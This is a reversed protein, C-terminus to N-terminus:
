KQYLGGFNEQPLIYSIKNEEKQTRPNITRYKIIKEGEQVYKKEMIDAIM